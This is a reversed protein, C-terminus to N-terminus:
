PSQFEMIEATIKFKQSHQWFCMGVSKGLRQEVIKIIEKESVEINAPLEFEFMAFKTGDVITEKITNKM